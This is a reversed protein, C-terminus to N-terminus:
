NEVEPDGAVIYVKFGSLACGLFHGLFKMQQREDAAAFARRVEVPQLLEPRCCSFDPCCEGDPRVGNHVSEGAVWRRTQEEVPMIRGMFDSV